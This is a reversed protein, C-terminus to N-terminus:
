MENSITSLNSKGNAPTKRGSETFQIQSTRIRVVM